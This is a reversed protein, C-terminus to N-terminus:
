SSSCTPWSRKWRMDEHRSYVSARGYGRMDPALARFGLGAFVPLQERWSISLESWGHLFVNLTPQAAGCSLFFTTCRVSKAVRELIPFSM